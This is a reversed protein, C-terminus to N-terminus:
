KYTLGFGFPFAAQVGLHDILAQGHLPGYEAVKAKRDFPPLHAESTPIAFPLRGTPKEIGLLIDALAHGGEMGPYWVMLIAPVVERWREMLVASGAIVAAVTRPNSATVALLLDEDKPHLTLSRRDGGRAFGQPAMQHLLIRKVVRKLAWLPPRPLRRLLWLPLSIDLNEGEDDQDYGAVVVAADCGAALAAAREPSSGDDYVVETQTSRLAARLGELPTVTSPPHVGSSGRDGLNPQDALRGIVAL